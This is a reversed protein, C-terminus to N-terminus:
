GMKLGRNENEVWSNKDKRTVEGKVERGPYTKVCRSGPM